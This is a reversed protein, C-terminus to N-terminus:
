LKERTQEGSESLEAIDKEARGVESEEIVEKTSQTASSHLPKFRSTLNLVEDELYNMYDLEDQSMGQSAAYYSIMPLGYTCAKIYADGLEKRNFPSCDLFTIKFNKGYSQRHIFRNIASEISKVIGYTMAQDVKISLSLANASAKDNNFLLSSTGSASYLHQEADSITDTDATNTREFSIKDIPMPTLVSGIEEPLVNDLNRWFEKAKDFDMEWEGDSNIGLKMALIAYNELETKTLKLAKYDEIDYIERLIGAFPPIAYTLIDSNCKIAFSTPSELEQWKMGTRNNQYLEYKKKFEVPYMELYKSNSDFYSFDFSVNPVNDEIVTIACYDSPLQQIIISDTNVWMTGYFVDERLCVTLIKAFQNKIDMSSLLNLLKTYNKKITQPKSNSTDIKYPSIIYSLDSLSTFYQILRRFHSSAGYIYTVANRINKENTYPDQLFQAIKDKNYLYFTPSSSTSNLDRMVLRGLSSFQKPLRFADSLDFNANQQVKKASISNDTIIEKERKEIIIVVKRTYNNAPTTPSSGVHLGFNKRSDFDRAKGVQRCGLTFSGLAAVNLEELLPDIRQHYSVWIYM